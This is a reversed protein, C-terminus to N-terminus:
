KRNKIADIPKMSAIKKVPIFTSIVAVFLSVALLLAVQRIGFNLFTILLGASNRLMSNIFLTVSLTGVVSLVYNIM